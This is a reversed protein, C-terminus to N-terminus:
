MASKKSRINYHSTNNADFDINNYECPVKYKKWAEILSLNM